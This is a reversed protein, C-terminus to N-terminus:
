QDRHSERSGQSQSLEQLWKPWTCLTVPVSAHFGLEESQLLSLASIHNVSHLQPWSQSVGSIM